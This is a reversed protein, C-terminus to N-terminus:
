LLADEEDLADYGLAELGAELHDVLHPTGILYDATPTSAEAMATRLADDWEQPEFAGRGIWMVAVLAAQEEEAMRDIFGRLEAEARHLERGMVIVAAVKRVSIQEM